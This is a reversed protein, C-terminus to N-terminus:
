EAGGAAANLTVNMSLSRCCPVATIATTTPPTVYREEDLWIWCGGRLAACCTAVGRCSGSRTARAWAATFWSLAFARGALNGLSLSNLRLALYSGACTFCSQEDDWRGCAQMQRQCKKTLSHPNFFFFEDEMIRKRHRWAQSVQLTSPM